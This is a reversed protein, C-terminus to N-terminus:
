SALAAQLSSELDDIRQIDVREGDVFFTPTGTVGLAEGDQQSQTIRALTAPDDYAQEFQDMDLGLENAYRFFTERQSTEQHGWEEASTEFLRKYMAEFEGQEAAAEAALAANVSNGHLPMYRVVFSVRDGYEQRLDEVVPYLAVCAECEFDLFEVFVAEDGDSLRRSDETVLRDAAASASAVPTATETNRASAVLAGILALVVLAILAVSLKTSKSLTREGHREHIRPGRCESLSATTLIIARGHSPGTGRGGCSFADGHEIPIALRFTAAM